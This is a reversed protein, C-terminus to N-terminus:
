TEELFALVRRATDTLELDRRRLAILAPALSAHALCVREAVCNIEIATGDSILQNTLETARRESRAAQYMSALPLKDSAQYRLCIGVEALFKAAQAKTSLGVHEGLRLRRRRTAEFDVTSM